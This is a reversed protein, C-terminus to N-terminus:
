SAQCGSHNKQCKKKLTHTYCSSLIFHSNGLERFYQDKEMRDVTLDMFKVHYGAKALPTALYMLGLPATMAESERWEHGYLHEQLPPFILLVNRTV